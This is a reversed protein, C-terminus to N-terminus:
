DDITIFYIAYKPYRVKLQLVITAFAGNDDITSQQMIQTDIFCYRYIASYLMHKQQSCTGSCGNLVKPNTM